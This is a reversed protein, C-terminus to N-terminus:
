GSPNLRPIEHLTDLARWTMSDVGTIAFILVYITCRQVAEINNCKFETVPNANRACSRVLVWSISKRPYKVLRTDYRAFESRNEPKTFYACSANVLNVTVRLPFPFGLCTTFGSFGRFISARFSYFPLEFILSNSRAM